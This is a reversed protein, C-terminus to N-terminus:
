KGGTKPARKKEKAPKEQPDKKETPVPRGTRASVMEERQKQASEMKETM